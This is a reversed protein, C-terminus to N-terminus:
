RPWVEIGAEAGGVKLWVCSLMGRRAQLNPLRQVEERMTLQRKHNSTRM